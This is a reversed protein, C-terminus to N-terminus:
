LKGVKRLADLALTHSGRGSCQGGERRCAEAILGDWRYRCMPCMLACIGAPVSPPRSRLKEAAVADQCWRCVTLERGVWTAQCRTCELDFLDSPWLIAPGVVKGLGVRPALFWMDIQWCRRCLMLAGM